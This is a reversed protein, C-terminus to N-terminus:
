QFATPVSWINLNWKMATGCRMTPDILLLLGALSRLGWTKESLRSHRTKNDKSIIFQWFWSM